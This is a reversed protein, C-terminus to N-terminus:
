GPQGRRAPDGPQGALLNRCHRLMEALSQEVTRSTTDIVIADDAQKLPGVERARDLRDREGMEGRVEDFTAALGRRRLQRYRRGARESLSATVFFKVDAEPLVHTGIDRGDVVVGGPAAIQRQIRVLRERVGPVGAVVPAARTVRPDRIRNTVDRGDVRVRCRGHRWPELTLVLRGALAALADRDELPVHEELARFAVARYMAGTDVYLLGLRSALCRALTSKGAGAPGDIAIVPGSPRTAHCSM